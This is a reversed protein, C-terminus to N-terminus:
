SFRFVAYFDLQSSIQNRITWAGIERNVAWLPRMVNQENQWLKKRGHHTRRPVAEPFGNKMDMKRATLDTRPIGPRQCNFSADSSAFLGPNPPEPAPTGPAAEWRRARRLARNGAHHFVRGACHQRADRDFRGAVHQDLLGPRDDGVARALVLDDVQTGADVGHRERQRSKRGDLTVATSSGALKVEVILASRFTPESSSVTM